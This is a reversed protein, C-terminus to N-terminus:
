VPLMQVAQIRPQGERAPSSLDSVSTTRLPACKSKTIGRPSAIKLYGSDERAAHIPFETLSFPHRLNEGARNSLKCVPSVKLSSRRGKNM